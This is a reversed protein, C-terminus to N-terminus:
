ENYYYDVLLNRIEEDPNGLIKYEEETRTNESLLYAKSNTKDYAIVIGTGGCNHEECGFLLLVERGDSLKMNAAPTSVAMKSTSFSKLLEKVQNVVDPNEKLIDYSYQELKYPQYKNEQKKKAWESSYSSPPLPILQDAENSVQKDPINEGKKSMFFILGLAIAFIALSIFVIFSFKKLVGPM